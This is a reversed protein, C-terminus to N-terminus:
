QGSISRARSLLTQPTTYIDDVLAAISAGDTPNVELNLKAAEALLLPDKTAAVFANRLIDLRSAPVAPPGIILYSIEDPVLFLKMLQQDDTSKLYDMIFPVEPFKPDRKLGLQLFVRALRGELWGAKVAVNNNIDVGLIGDLEGREMALGMDATGKYGAIIKFKAGLMRNLLTPYLGLGSRDGTSGVVMTVRFADDLSQAAAAHWVVGGRTSKNMSGIWSFRSADFDKRPDLLADLVLGSWVVGFETGDKPSAGYLYNALVSSGAGPMNRPVLTPNGPIHKGIHRAILRGYADYSGGPGYGIYVSLQRGRYFDDAVSGPAGIFSAALVAGVGIALRSLTSIRM